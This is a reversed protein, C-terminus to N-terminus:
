SKRQRQRKLKLTETFSVFIKEKNDSNTYRYEKLEGKKILADINHRTMGAIDGATAKTVLGGTEAWQNKIWDKFDMKNVM